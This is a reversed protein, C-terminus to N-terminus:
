IRISIFIYAVSREIQIEISISDFKSTAKLDLKLLSQFLISFHKTGVSNRENKEKKKGKKDSCKKKGFSFTQSFHM